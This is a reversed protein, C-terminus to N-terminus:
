KALAEIEMLTSVFKELNKAGLRSKITSQVKEWYPIAAEVAARGKKTIVLPRRRADDDASDEIFEDIQLAKLNRVLTTRDLRLIKALESASLPGSVMINRLMAFQTIKLGSSEMANDYFKTIARSSRRVNSCICRSPVPRWSPQTLKNKIENM